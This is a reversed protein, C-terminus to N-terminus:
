AGVTLGAITRDLTTVRGQDGIPVFGVFFSLRGPASGPVVIVEAIDGPVSLGPKDVLIRSRLEWGQRGSISVARSRIDQRGTFDLYYSSSAICEMMAEAAQHPRRFGDQSHLSGVALMAAWGPETMQTVGATDYAWSMLYPYSLDEQWAGGPPAFSLTGGHVRGDAPHPARAPPDGQACAVRGPPVASSSPTPGPTRSPTRSPSPTPTPTATPLPSSDDWSSATSQPPSPDDLASNRDAFQRVVLVAIVVVVLLVALVAIMAGARSRRGPVSDGPRGSGPRAGGPRTAGPRTAGAPPPATPDATTEASWRNGDWFRYRGPAGAPDPYWGSAAM